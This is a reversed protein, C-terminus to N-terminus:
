LVRRKLVRAAMELLLLPKLNATILPNSLVLSVSLYLSLCISLRVPLSVFLCLSRGVSLGSLLACLLLCTKEWGILKGADTLAFLSAHVQNCEASCWDWSVSRVTICTVVERCVCVSERERM